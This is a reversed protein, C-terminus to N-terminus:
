LLLKRLHELYYDHLPGMTPFCVKYSVDVECSNDEEELDRDKPWCGFASVRKKTPIRLRFV